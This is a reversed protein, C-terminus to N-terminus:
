YRFMWHTQQCRGDEKGEGEEEEERERKEKEKPQSGNLEKPWKKRERKGEKKREESVAKM